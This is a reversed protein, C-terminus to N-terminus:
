FILQLLLHNHKMSYKKIKYLYNLRILLIKLNTESNNQM